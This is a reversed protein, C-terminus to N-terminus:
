KKGTKMDELVKNLQEKNMSIVGLRKLNTLKHELEAKQIEAATKLATLIPEILNSGFEIKERKQWQAQEM